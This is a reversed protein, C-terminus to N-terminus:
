GTSIDEAKKGEYVWFMPNAIWWTGPANERKKRLALLFMALEPDRCEM